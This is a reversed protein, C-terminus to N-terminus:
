AQPRLTKMSLWMIRLGFLIIFLFQLIEVRVFFGIIM